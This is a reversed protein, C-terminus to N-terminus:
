GGSGPRAGFRFLPSTRISMDRQTQQFNSGYEVFADMDDENKGVHPNKHRPSLWSGKQLSRFTSIRTTLYAGSFVVLNTTSTDARLDAFHCGATYIGAQMDGENDVADRYPEIARAGFFLLGKYGQNQAWWGIADTMSNGGKPVDVAVRLLAMTQIDEVRDETACAEVVARLNKEYRLDLCDQIDAEVELLVNSQMNMQYYVAEATAGQKTLSFFHGCNFGQGAYRQRADWKWPGDEFTRAFKPGTHLHTPNHWRFFKGTWSTSFTLSGTKTFVDKSPNGLTDTLDDRLSRGSKSKPTM